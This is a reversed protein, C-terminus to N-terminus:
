FSFKAIFADTTGNAAANNVAQFAGRTVPFNTSAAYGTVYANGASDLTIGTGVDNISGGLYTSYTLATGAPNLKAIFANSATDDATEPANNTAQFANKTVPFNTSQTFGTILANNNSDVVIGYGVDGIGAVGGNGGLYTSYVLATGNANLKTVFANVDGAVDGKTAQFAGSTVPFDSSYAEGAIYANDYCDLAIAFGGDGDGLGDGSGGLLTSYQLASGDTSLKTVFANGGNKNKANNKTQFANATTPFNGSLAIGTVYAHNNADLAIASASDSKTGGLYTSYVLSSGDPSLKTVFVNDKGNNAGQFSGSTVPFDTSGTTGTIYAHGAPDVAIGSGTDGPAVAGSGGIFTSYILSTGDFSLKSVFANTGKNAKANNKTQFAGKTTPFDGSAAAGTVYAHGNVDVAIGYGFDYKNGGLYTSYILATGSPNLKTVFAQAFDKSSANNVTQFAGSTVPFDTSYATGGVYINKSSDVAIGAGSDGEGVGIGSGGLYTSYTLTPDIVLARKKDYSGLSFGVTDDTLLAFSGAVPERDGAPQGDKVQYVVPKNFAIQKTGCAVVLDGNANLSLKAGAFHLKVEKPDGGPAIVFDYELQRQNGYYVLDVGPYVATYKVKAYTPVGTRWNAPDDGVLYNAVGPLQEEGAVTLSPNAHVLQMRVVDAALLDKPGATNVRSQQLATSRLGDKSENSLTLVAEDSTLFLTYANGRSTFKVRRDRQGQNAEFSLPLKGYNAALAPTMASAKSASSSGIGPQAVVIPTSTLVVVGLVVNKLM